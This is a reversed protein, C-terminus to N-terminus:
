GYSLQLKRCRIEKYFFIYAEFYVGGDQVVYFASHPQARYITAYWTARSRQISAGSVTADSTQFTATNLFYLPTVGWVMPRMTNVNALRRWQELVGSRRRYLGHEM